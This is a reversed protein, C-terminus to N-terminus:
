VFGSVCRGAASLVSASIGYLTVQAGPVLTFDRNNYSAYVPVSNDLSATRGGPTAACVASGGGAAVDCLLVLTSALRVWLPPQLLTGLGPLVSVGSVAAEAALVAPQFSLLSPPVRFRLGLGPVPTAVQGTPVAGGPLQGNLVMSVNGLTAEVASAVPFSVQWLAPTGRDPQMVVRSVLQRDFFM